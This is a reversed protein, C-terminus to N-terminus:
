HGLSALSEPLNELLFLFLRYCHLFLHESVHAKLHKLSLLVEQLSRKSLKLSYPKVESRPPTDWLRKKSRRQNKFGKAQLIKHCTQDDLVDFIVLANACSDTEIWFCPWSLYRYDTGVVHETLNLCKGLRSVRWSVDAFCIRSVDQKGTSSAKQGFVWCGRGSKHLLRPCTQM